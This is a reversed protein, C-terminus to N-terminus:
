GCEDNGSQRSAEQGALEVAVVSSNDEDDTERILGEPDATLELCYVGDELDDPLKLAQGPLDADYIDAFGPTVGQVTDRECDGYHESADAWREGELRRNDRMCFSVKETASVPRSEGPRTLAYGASADFHWHDHDPHFVMCGAPFRRTATDRDPDFSDDGDVDRHVLQSAHRQGEPCDGAEDPMLVLPGDGANALAATFRLELGGDAPRVHVDEAPLSRM